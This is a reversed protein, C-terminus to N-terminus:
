VTFSVTRLKSLFVRNLLSFNKHIKDLYKIDFQYSSDIVEINIIQLYKQIEKFKESNIITKDETEICKMDQEAQKKTRELQKIKLSISKLSNIFFPEPSLISLNIKLCILLSISAAFGDTIM